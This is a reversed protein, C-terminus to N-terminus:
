RVAIGPWSSPSPWGRSQKAVSECHCCIHRICFRGRRHGPANQKVSEDKDKLAEALAAVADKAKSGMTGLGYAAGARVKPEKDKLTQVLAPVISKADSGIAGLAYAAATRVDAIKDKLTELLAPVAKKADPGLKELDQCAIIRNEAKPDKLDKILGRVEKDNDAPAVAPLAIMLYVLSITPM